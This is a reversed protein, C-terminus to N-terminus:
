HRHLKEKIKSLTGKKESKESSGSDKDAHGKDAHEKDAAGEDEPKPPVGKTVHIGKQELLRDAERGAGPKTADFDGGDAQLGSTKVYKEGTGEGSSKAHPDNPDEKGEAEDKKDGVIGSDAKGSDVDVKGADGGRERALEDLPKPPPIKDLDQGKNIGEGTNDVDMAANKPHTQPNEPDRTDNQAKSTDAPVDQAKMETHKNDPVKDAGAATGTTKAFQASDHHPGTTTSSTTPTPTSAQQTSHATSTTPTGTTSPEHSNVSSANPQPDINGKDFPEGKSVDGQAGSIPEQGHTENNATTTTDSEGWVAKQQQQQWPRGEM